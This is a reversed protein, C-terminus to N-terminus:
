VAYDENDKQLIRWEIKANPVPWSAIDENGTKTNRLIRKTIKGDKIQYCIVNNELEILFTQSGTTYGKFTKPFGKAANVDKRIQRLASLISSNSAITRQSKPIDRFTITTM